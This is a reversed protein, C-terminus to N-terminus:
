GIGRAFVGAVWLVVLVVIVIGLVGGLGRGGYRNYGYYGGGGGFLLLLVVIILITSMQVGEPAIVQHWPAPKASRNPRSPALRRDDTELALQSSKGNLIACPGDDTAPPGLHPATDALEASSMSDIPSACQAPNFM